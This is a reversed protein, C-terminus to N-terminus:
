PSHGAGATIGDWVGLGEFKEGLTRKGEAGIGRFISGVAGYMVVM